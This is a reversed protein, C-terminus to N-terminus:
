VDEGRIADQRRWRALIRRAHRESVGLREALIKSQYIAESFSDADADSPAVVKASELEVFNLEPTREDIACSADQEDLSQHRFCACEASRRVADIVRQRWVRVAGDLIQGELAIRYAIIWATSVVADHEIVFQRAIFKTFRVNKSHALFETADRWPRPKRKGHDSHARNM